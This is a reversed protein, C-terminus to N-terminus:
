QFCMLTTWGRRLSVFIFYLILKSRWSYGRNSSSQMHLSSRWKVLPRSWTIKNGQTSKPQEACRGRALGQHLWSRWIRLLTVLRARGQAASFFVSLIVEIVNDGCLCKVLDLILGFGFMWFLFSAQNLYVVFALSKRLLITGYSLLYCLSPLWWM